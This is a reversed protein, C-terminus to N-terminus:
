YRLLVTLQLTSFLPGVEYAYCGSDPALLKLTTADPNTHGTAILHVYARRWAPNVSSSRAPRDPRDPRGPGRGSNIVEGGGVLHGRLMGNKMKPMAGQLASALMRNSLHNRGLLRSDQASIGGRPRAGELRAPSRAEKPALRQFRWDFWQKFDDFNAYQTIVKQMGPFKEAVSLVPEWLSKARTIGADEEVALMNVWIANPYIYFYGMVGKDNLAPM